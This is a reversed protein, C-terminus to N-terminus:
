WGLGDLLIINAIEYFRAITIGIGVSAAVFTVALIWTTLYLVCREAGAKERALWTPKQHFTRPLLKTEVVPEVPAEPIATTKGELGAIWIGDPVTPEPRKFPEWPTTSTM